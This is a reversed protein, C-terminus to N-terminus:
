IHRQTLQISSGLLDPFEEENDFANEFDEVAPQHETTQQVAPQHQTTQHVASLDRDKAAAMPLAETAALSQVNTAM